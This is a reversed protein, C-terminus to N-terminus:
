ESRPTWRFWRAAVLLGIVGWAAVVALNGPEIAAGTTAPDFGDFLAVFFHRFPFV